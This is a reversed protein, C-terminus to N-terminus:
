AEGREVEDSEWADEPTEDYVPEEIERDVGGTIYNQLQFLIPNRESLSNYQQALISGKERPTM